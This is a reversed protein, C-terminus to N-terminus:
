AGCEGVGANSASGCTRTSPMAYTWGRGLTWSPTERYDCIAQEEEQQGLASLQELLEAVQPPDQRVETMQNLPRPDQRSRTQHLVYWRPHRDFVSKLFHAFGCLSCVITYENITLHCEFLHKRVQLKEGTFSCQRCRWARGRKGASVEM